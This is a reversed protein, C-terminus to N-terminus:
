HVAMNWNGSVCVQLFYRLKKFKLDVYKMKALVKLPSYVKDLVEVEISMNSHKLVTELRDKLALIQM